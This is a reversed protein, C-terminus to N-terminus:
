LNKQEILKETNNSYYAFIKYSKPDKRRRDNLHRLCMERTKEITNAAGIITERGGDSIEGIYRTIYPTAFSVSRDFERYARNLDFLM